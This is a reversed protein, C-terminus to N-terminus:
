QRAEAKPPVNRVIKFVAPPQQSILAPGAKPTSVLVSFTISYIEGPYSILGDAVVNSKGLPELNAVGTAGKFVGFQEPHGVPTTYFIGVNDRTDVNALWGQSIITPQPWPLNGAVLKTARKRTNPQHRGDHPLNYPCTLPYMFADTRDTYLTPIEAGMAYVKSAHNYFTYHFRAVGRSNIRVDEVYVWHSPNGTDYDWPKIVAHFRHRGAAWKIVPSGKEPVVIGKPHRYYGQRGEAGAQTPNVMLQQHGGIDQSLFQDTQLERGVDHTDVINRGRAVNKNTIGVVVAGWALNFTVALGGNSITVDKSAPPPPWPDKATAARVGSAIVCTVALVVSLHLYQKKVFKMVSESFVFIAAATLGAKLSCGSLNVM